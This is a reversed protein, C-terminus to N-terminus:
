MDALSPATFIYANGHRMHQRVGHINVMVTLAIALDGPGHGFVLEELIALRDGSEVLVAGIDRIHKPEEKGTGALTGNPQPFPHRSGLM